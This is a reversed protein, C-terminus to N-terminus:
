KNRKITRGTVDIAKQLLTKEGSKDLAKFVGSIISNPDKM